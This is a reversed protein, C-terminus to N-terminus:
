FNNIAEIFGNQSIFNADIFSWNWIPSKIGNLINQNFINNKEKIRMDVAENFECAKKMGGIQDQYGITQILIDEEDFELYVEGNFIIKIYIEADQYDFSNGACRIYRDGINFNLGSSHYYETNSTDIELDLSQINKIKLNASKLLIVLDENVSITSNPNALLIPARWLEEDMNVAINTLSINCEKEHHIQFQPMSMYLKIGAMEEFSLFREYSDSINLIYKM